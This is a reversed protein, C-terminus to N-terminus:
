QVMNKGDTYLKAGHKGVVTILGKFDIGPKGTKKDNVVRKWGIMDVEVSFVASKDDESMPDTIARFMEWSVPFKCYLGNNDQTEGTLFVMNPGCDEATCDRCEVKVKMGSAAYDKKANLWEGFSHLRAWDPVHEAQMEIVEDLLVRKPTTEVQVLPKVELAEFEADIEDQAAAAMTRMRTIEFNDAGYEDSGWYGNALPNLPHPPLSSTSGPFNAARAAPAKYFADIDRTTLVSSKDGQLTWSDLSHVDFSHPGEGLIKTNSRDAAFRLMSEESAFFWADGTEMWSLPRQSNRLFNLRKAQVEYWILAYAANIKQMAKEVDEEEALVQAIANSDVEVDALEKHSGFMTGNHVLVVKDEVWFPHANADVVSGRTAKRNHGIMAWGDRIADQRLNQYERTPLFSSSTGVDKAINVNGSNNVVFVGTSDPGRMQDIFLLTDFMEVNWNSFGNRHKTVMGVLGCM